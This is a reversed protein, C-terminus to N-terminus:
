KTLNARGYQYSQAAQYPNQMMLYSRWYPLMREVKHAWKLDGKEYTSGSSKYEEQTAFLTVINVLDTALSFGVPSINTVVLAEKVFGWPTNFAAQESYLRSAAYYLFGMAQDPEEDDDDDPKASLMKLLTLAVIVAMDAWNRRMNYYQNASFGANLMRQQTTKSVPTFIARATLAFGGKDTFTSAIVKALTRMSGETETGLAVSYANVGFRRQIIGLAYGRMALLANGYVNQQIAVKDANNYIGHMRNNIERARDM